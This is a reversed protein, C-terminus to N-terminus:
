TDADGRGMSESGSLPVLVTTEAVYAVYSYRANGPRASIM